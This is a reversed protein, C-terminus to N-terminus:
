PIARTACSIFSRRAPFWECLLESIFAHRPTKEGWREKGASAAYFSAVGAFLAPYSTGERVLKERLRALDMGLRRIRRVSLYEDVLRQRNKLNSLDGFARRRKYVYHNFHTEACIALSPHRNLMNRLLSIGSRPSGVIFVPPKSGM